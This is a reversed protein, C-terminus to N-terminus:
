TVSVISENQGVPTAVPLPAGKAVFGETAMSLRLGIVAVM